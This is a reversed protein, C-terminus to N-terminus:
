EHSGRSDKIAAIRVYSSLQFRQCFEQLVHLSEPSRHEFVYKWLSSGPIERHREITKKVIEIDLRGPTSAEVVNFGYDKFLRLLAEFSLLNLRDFPILNPSKDSLVQYEFGSSTNTTVVFIGGPKCALAAEEIVRKPAFSREIQEFAAFVDAYGRPFGKRFIEIDKPILGEQEFCEPLFLLVRQFIKQDKVQSLFAPYRSGYDVFVKADSLYEGILGM